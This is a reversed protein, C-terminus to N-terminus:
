DVEPDVSDLDATVEVVAVGVLYEEPVAFHVLVLGVAAALALEVLEVLELDLELLMSCISPSTLVIGENHVLM